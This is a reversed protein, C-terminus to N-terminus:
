IKQVIFDIKTTINMKIVKSNPQEIYSIKTYKGNAAFEDVAHCDM